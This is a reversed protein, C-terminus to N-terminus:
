QGGISDLNPRSLSPTAPLSRLLTAPLSSAPQQYCIPATAQNTNSPKNIHTEWSSKLDNKTPFKSHTLELSNGPGGKEGRLHGARPGTCRSVTAGGLRPFHRKLGLGVMQSSNLRSQLVWCCSLCFLSLRSLVWAIPMGVPCLPVWSGAWGLQKLKDWSLLFFILHALGFM